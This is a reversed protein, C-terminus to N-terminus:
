KGLQQLTDNLADALMLAETTNGKEWEAKFRRAEYKIIWVVLDMIKSQTYLPTDTSIVDAVVAGNFYAGEVAEALQNALKTEKSAMDISKTYKM